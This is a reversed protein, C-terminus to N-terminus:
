KVEKNFNEGDIMQSQDESMKSSAKAFRSGLISIGAMGWFAVGSGFIAVAGFVSPAITAFLNIGVSRLALAQGLKDPAIIEYLRNMLIPQTAGLVIGLFFSLGGLGWVSKIIPFIAMTCAAVLMLRPLGDTLLSFFKFYMLLRVTLVGTAFAGLIIGTSSASFGQQHGLVPIALHYFDWCGNLILNAFLLRRFASDVMLGLVGSQEPSFKKEKERIEVRPLLLCGLLWVSLLSFVHAGSVQDLLFGGYVSGLALGLSPALGLLSFLKIREDSNQAQRGVERQSAILSLNTAGGSIAVALCLLFFDGGAHKRLSALFIALAMVGAALAMSRPYGHRDSFNGSYIATFIPMISGSSLLLGLEWSNRGLELVSWSASIRIGAACAQMCLFNLLIFHM